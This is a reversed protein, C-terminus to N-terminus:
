GRKRKSGAAASGAGGGGDGGDGKLVGRQAKMLERWLEGPQQELLAMGEPDAAEIDAPHKHTHTHPPPV